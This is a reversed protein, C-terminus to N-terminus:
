ARSCRSCSAPTRRCCTSGSIQPHQRLNGRGEEIAKVISAFNDDTLVMDAAEQLRRHRHHGMAVGINASKLAPADNIGDGTMAVIHGKRQLARCHAAQAGSRRPRVRAGARRHTSSPTRWPACSTGTVLRAGPEFIELERAIAEATAPHDGTIM